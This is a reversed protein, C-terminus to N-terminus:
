ASRLSSFVCGLWVLLLMFCGIRQQTAFRQYAEESTDPKFDWFFFKSNRRHWLKRCQHESFATWFAYIVFLGFGILLFLPM